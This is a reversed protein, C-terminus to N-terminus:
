CFGITGPITSVPQVVSVPLCACRTMPVRAPPLTRSSPGSAIIRYLREVIEASTATLMAAAASACGALLEPCVVFVVVLTAVSEWLLEDLSLPEDRSPPEKLPPEDPPLLFPPEIFPILRASRCFHTAFAIPPLPPVEDLEDFFDDLLELSEFFDDLPSEDDCDLLDDELEEDDFEEDLLPEDLM